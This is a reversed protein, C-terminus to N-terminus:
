KRSSQLKLQSLLILRKKHRTFADTFFSIFILIKAIEVEIGGSIM